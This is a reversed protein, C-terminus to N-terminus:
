DGMRECFKLIGDAVAQAIDPQNDRLLIAEDINSIFALEVLAAPMWTNKLVSFSAEKVGRDYTCLNNVLSKQIDNALIEARGGKYFVFCESGHANPNYASNCHISVFCDCDATHNATWCVSGYYAYDDEGALNDSYMLVVTHGQEELREKVIKSVNLAIEAENIGLTLNCAGPDVMVGNDDRDSCHGPNLFITM